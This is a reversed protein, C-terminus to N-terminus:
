QGGTQKGAQRDIYSDMQRNRKRGTQRRQGGGEDATDTEKDLFRSAFNARQRKRMEYRNNVISNLEYFVRSLKM